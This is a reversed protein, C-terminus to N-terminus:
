KVEVEECGKKYAVISKFCKPPVNDDCGIMKVPKTLCAPAILLNTGVPKKAACGLLGLAILGLSLIKM